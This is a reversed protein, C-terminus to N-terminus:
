KEGERGERGGESGGETWARGRDAGEKMERRGARVSYNRRVGERM